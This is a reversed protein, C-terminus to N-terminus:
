EDPNSQIAQGVLTHVQRLQDRSLAIAHNQNKCGLLYDDRVTEVLSIHGFQKNFLSIVKPPSVPTHEQENTSM